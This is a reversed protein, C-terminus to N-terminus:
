ENQIGEERDKVRRLRSEQRVRRLDLIEAVEYRPPLAGEVPRTRLHAPFYGMRGHLETLLLLAIFNLSPPNILVPETQWKKASIGLGDVLDVVQELYDRQDDFQVPVDIMESVNQGTLAEIRAVQDPSIPHSFNLVIM